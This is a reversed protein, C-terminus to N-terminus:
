LGLVVQDEVLQQVALLLEEELRYQQWIQPWPWTLCHQARWIPLWWFTLGILFQHRGVQRNM